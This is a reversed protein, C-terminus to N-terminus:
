KLFLANLSVHLYYNSCGRIKLNLQRIISGDNCQRSNKITNRLKDLFLKVNEKAPKILLKGDYKRVNFGLFNFGDNVHTLHTKEESLTLGRLKLFSIVAPKVKSELIERSAGTIIFDDAYVIINVKDKSSTAAKVAQELGTLTLVLLTPSIIGGQPTGEFTPNFM